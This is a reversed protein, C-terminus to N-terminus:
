GIGETGVAFHFHSWYEIKCERRGCTVSRAVLEETISLRLHGYIGTWVDRYDKNRKNWSM